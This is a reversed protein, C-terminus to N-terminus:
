NSWGTPFHAHTPSRPTFPASSADLRATASVSTNGRKFSHNYIQTVSELFAVFDSFSPFPEQKLMKKIWKNQIKTPLKGTFKKNMVKSQVISLSSYLPLSAEIKRLFDLFRQLGEGDESEIQPWEDIQCLFKDAIVDDGGFRARLTQLARELSSAADVPNVLFPDIARRAEDSTLSKLHLLSEKPTLSVSFAEFDLLFEDIQINKGSFISPKPFSPKFSVSTPNPHPIEPPTSFKDIYCKTDRLSKLFMNLMELSQDCAKQYDEGQTELNEIYENDLTEFAGYLEKLDDLSKSVIPRACNNEIQISLRSIKLKLDRIKYGREQAPTPSM